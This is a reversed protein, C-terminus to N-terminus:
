SRISAVKVKLKRKVSGRESRLRQERKALTRYANEEAFPRDDEESKGGRRGELLRGM